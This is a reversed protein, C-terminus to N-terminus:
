GESPNEHKHHIVPTIQLTNGRLLMQLDQVSSSRAKFTVDDDDLIEPSAGTQIVEEVTFKLLKIEKQPNLETRVEIFQLVNLFFFFPAFEEM